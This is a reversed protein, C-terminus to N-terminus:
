KVFKFVLWVHHEVSKADVEYKEKKSISKPEMYTTAMCTTTGHQTM